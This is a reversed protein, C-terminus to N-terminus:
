RPRSPISTALNSALKPKVSNAKIDIVLSWSTARCYLPTLLPRTPVTRQMSVDVVLLPATMESNECYGPSSSVTHFAHENRCYRGPLSSTTSVGPDAHHADVVDEDAGVAAGLSDFLELAAALADDHLHEVCEV